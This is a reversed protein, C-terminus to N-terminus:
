RGEDRVLSIVAEVIESALFRGISFPLAAVGLIAEVKKHAIMVDCRNCEDGRYECGRCQRAKIIDYEIKSM